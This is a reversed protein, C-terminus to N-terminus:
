RRAVAVYDRATESDAVVTTLGLCDYAFKYRTLEERTAGCALCGPGSATCRIYSVIMTSDDELQYDGTWTVTNATCAGGESSAVLTQSFSLDSAFVVDEQVDFGAAEPYTARWM